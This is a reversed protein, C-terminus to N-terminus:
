HLANLAGEVHCCKFSIYTEMVRPCHPCHMHEPIKGVGVPIDVRSCPRNVEIVKDHYQKFIIEYGIERVYGKWKEAEDVVKLITTGHGTFIVKSGKSLVVWGSENKYSLLKQIEKTVTDPETKKETKSFFFSEMKDWFRGLIGVDDQGKENKGILVLEISIGAEKLAPDNALVTAKRTFQQIWENDKGGYFFIYKDDKIVVPSKNVGVMIDEMVDEKNALTQEAEKTFPFAKAGWVKIIHLANPHEVKGRPSVVVVLPKNKFNWEEKIFKIGVVPSFYQVTYWPMKSRLVEFKRKLDDTWQEVIPIWVIKHQDKKSIGDYVPKLISIEEITIDLSSIFFLINKKKLVEINVLKNTSGDILSPDVDKPFILAKFVEMVETPTQFIKKLKRYAEIVDIQEHALKITRRLVNLIVNIKQAFPSLEQTKGEDGTICCLKTTCTAITIIAWYVDVPIRDLAGSLAPVDKTDYISLKELEFISEIVELTATILNNLEIIAKGYKQLGPRKVVVPVRKLIGVSKALQDSSYLEALLWFDGYDLAFAALTLVAKADWSYHALKNLISMTTKHAIEEGPAKCAMECSLAKLTCSPPSFSAKPAKEELNEQHEKTGRVFNEVLHTARQIINETVVFLSDVDFKEDGHVHTAYITNMIQDDSMTLVNIEAKVPQQATALLIKNTAM